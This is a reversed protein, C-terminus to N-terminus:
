VSVAAPRDGGASAAVLVLGLLCAGIAFRDDTRLRSGYLQRAALATLAISGGLVAQVAFVPLFRLAAATCVWGLLDVLLGGLYRPQVVLPRHKRVRRTGASQLLGALSNLVM